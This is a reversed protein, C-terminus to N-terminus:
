LALSSLRRSFDGAMSSWADSVRNMGPAIVEDYEISLLAMAVFAAGAYTRWHADFVGGLRDRVNRLSLAFGFM